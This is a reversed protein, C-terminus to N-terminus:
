FSWTVGTLLFPRCSTEDYAAGPFFTGFRVTYSLDSFIRYNAYYDMEWGLYGSAETALPDSVAAVSKNKYYLYYDAGVELDKTIEYQHLPRVVGGARWIHINSLRPAYSLGTDRFGFAVFSHDAFGKDVGGTANTPSGLRTPEGSAFMYEVSIIPRSKHRFIYDLRQDFGWAKIDNTRIFRDNGYSSGREIVWESSYRLNPIVQGLDGTSGWGYYTSNYRFDQFLDRPDESTHDRQWIVYAFPEHWAFGKYKEQIIHFWRNSHDQVPRSTDINPTSSPTRGFIYTTEFGAWESKSQFHDLTIDMAYGTGITVLDRGGKLKLDVPLNTSGHVQLAKTLNFQYWGRELNPGDLDNQHANYNDGQNWDNFISVGRVYGEHIGQDASLSTWLRLEYQRLTRDNEIGDDFLYFYFNYWGGWDMNFKQAAPLEQQFRRDNERILERQSQLISQNVNQNLSMQGRAAPTWAILASLLLFRLLWVARLGRASASSRLRPVLAAARRASMEHMM